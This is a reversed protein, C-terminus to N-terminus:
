GNLGCVITVTSNYAYAVPLNEDRRIARFSSRTM